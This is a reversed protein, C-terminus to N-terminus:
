VWSIQEQPTVGITVEGLHRWVYLIQRVPDAQEFPPLTVFQAVLTSDWQDAIRVVDEHSLQLRNHTDEMFHAQIHLPLADPYALIAPLEM